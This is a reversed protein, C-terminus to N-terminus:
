LWLNHSYNLEHVDASRFGFIAKGLQKSDDLASLWHDNSTM